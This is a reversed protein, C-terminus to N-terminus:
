ATFTRNPNAVARVMTALMTRPDSSNFIDCGAVLIDAGAAAAKELNTGDLGGEAEIAFELHRNARAKVAQRIKETSRPVFEMHHDYVMPQGCLITLYDIDELIESVSDVPTPYTIAVGAKAKKTRIFELLRPLYRTAEYHVCIRDAGAKLFDGVFREPREVLLHVEIPLDTAKRLSAVVPQGVSIEPVFHGDMVDVHVMSAGAAKVAELAEGFCAWDAAVISPAILPM